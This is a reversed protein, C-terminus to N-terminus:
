EFYPFDEHTGAIRACLVKAKALQGALVDERARSDGAFVRRDFHAPVFENLLITCWKIGFLAYAVPLRKVLPTRGRLSGCLGAVFRRKMDDSLAMAPHLLFDSITKAPDDWGFYEFDLFVLSSDPRRVANHFGFDSSSLTRAELPLTEDMSAGTRALREGGWRVVSALLPEIDARVFEHLEERLLRSM